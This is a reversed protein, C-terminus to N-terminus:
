FDKRMSYQYFVIHNLVVYYWSPNFHALPQFFLKVEIWFKTLVSVYRESTISVGEQEFWYPAITKYGMDLWMTYEVAHVPKELCFDPSELGLCVRCRSIIRRSLTFQPMDTFWINKVWDQDCDFKEKLCQWMEVRRSIDNQIMNQIVLIRHPFIKLDTKLIRWVSTVSM